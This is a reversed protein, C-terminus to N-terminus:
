DPAGAPGPAPQSELLELMELLKGGAEHQLAAVSRNVKLCYDLAATLERMLNALRLYTDHISHVTESLEEPQPNHTREDLSDLNAELLLLTEVFSQDLAFSM